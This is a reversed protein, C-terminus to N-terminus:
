NYMLYIQWVLYIKGFWWQPLKWNNLRFFVCMMSFYWALTENRVNLPPQLMRWFFCFKNVDNSLMQGSLLKDPKPRSCQTSCSLCCAIMNVGTWNIGGSLSRSGSMQGKLQCGLDWLSQPLKWHGMMLRAKPCPSLSLFSHKTPKKQKDDHGIQERIWKLQKIM